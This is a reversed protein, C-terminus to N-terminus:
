TGRWHKRDEYVEALYAEAQDRDLGGGTEHLRRLMAVPDPKPFEAQKEAQELSRRVVETQSVQWLFALRRLRSTTTGDLALTTRNTMTHMGKSIGESKQQTM